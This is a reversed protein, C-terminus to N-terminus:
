KVLEAVVSACRRCIDPYAEDEGVDPLHRWCRACKTHETPKLLLRLDTIDQGAVSGEPPEESVSVESVILLEALSEEGFSLLFERLGREEASLKVSVELSSRVKGENRLKEIIRAVEHRITFFREYREILKRDYLEEDVVPLLALHVSEEKEEIPLHEFAEEATHVLIPAILRIIASGVQLLATQSSRRKPSSASECYLRDKIVDFYFSSLEVVCFRFFRQFFIHFQFDSYASHATEIMAQCVALAWRDLEGMESYPVVDKKPDFDSLAGLIFRFTNRIKRYPEVATGILGLSTNIDSQYDISAVWLRVIDAGYHSLVEDVSIFNGLSKSMKRGEEDVVFGHTLVTKYPPTQFAAVATLLATQFWGRHQDSGELYLDAPFAMDDRKMLIPSYSSGSEFWVDLIDNEKKLNAGDCNPCKFGEPLFEELPKRFWSDAGEEAFVDRVRRLVDADLTVSGCDDCRVAPIPVGWYRQRSICWDPRERVMASIRTKGWSPVWRIHKIFELLRQRLGDHEVSIFWQETARFILPAGCRWCHPYSHEVSGSAFLAGRKKLDEIIAADADFVLVGMQEPFEETFRGRGDVPSLIELGYKRGVDYDEKGHGPAIHVTGTGQELTVFDALILRGRRKIFPHTYLMGELEEGKVTGLKEWKSLGAEEMVREITREALIVVEEGIRVAAYDIDPGLAVAVNAPLTWPTTTWILFNVKEDDLGFSEKVAEEVPFRVYISPGEVMKYELEAEALATECSYCWHIPRLQRYLIHLLVDMVAAEYDPSMTLYPREWDGSVGVRQFQEKQYKVYKEAYERCLRRIEDPSMEKYENGLLQMVKYEIPLGHCDWGPVYPSDKGRMTEYRVVFDKLVKNMVTGIHLDGTAYPPGDHLIYREAGKRAERIKQYLGMELWKKQIKPEKEKLNAKMSFSTKPLNITESYNM